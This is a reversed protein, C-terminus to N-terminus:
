HIIFLSDSTYFLIVCDFFTNALYFFRQFIPKPAEKEDNITYAFM